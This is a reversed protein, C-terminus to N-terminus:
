WDVMVVHLYSANELLLPYPARRYFEGKPLKMMVRRSAKKRRDSTGERKKETKRERGKKRRTEGLMRM